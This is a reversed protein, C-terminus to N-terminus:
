ISSRAPSLEATKKGFIILVEVEYVKLGNLPRIRSSPRDDERYARQM